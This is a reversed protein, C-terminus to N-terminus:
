EPQVKGFFNVSSQNVYSLLDATRYNDVLVRWDLGIWYENLSFNVSPLKVIVITFTLIYYFTLVISVSQKDVLNLYRV